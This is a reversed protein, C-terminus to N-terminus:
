EQKSIKEELPLLHERIPGYGLAWGFCAIAWAGLIGAILRLRLPDDALASNIAAFTAAAFLLPSILLCWHYRTHWVNEKDERDWDDRKVWVWYRKWCLVLAGLVILGCAALIWTVIM